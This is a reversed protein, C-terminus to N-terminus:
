IFDEKSIISFVIGQTKASVDTYGKFFSIAILLKINKHMFYQIIYM